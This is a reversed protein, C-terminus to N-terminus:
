KYSSSINSKNLANYEGYIKGFIMFVILSPFGEHVIDVTEYVLFMALLPFGLYKFTLKLSKDRIFKFFMIFMQIIFILILSAGIVGFRYINNIWGTHIESDVNSGILMSRYARTSEFSNGLWLANTKAKEFYLYLALYELYRTEKEVTSTQISTKNGRSKYGKTYKDPLLLFFLFFSTALIALRLFQKISIKQQLVVVLVGVVLMVIPLRKSTIIISILAIVLFWVVQQLSVKKNYSYIFLIVFCYALINIRDMALGGVTNDVSYMAYGLKFTLTVCLYVFCFVIIRKVLIVLKEDFDELGSLQKGCIFILYYSIFNTMYSLSYIDFHYFVLFTSYLIIALIIYNIKIRFMYIYYFLLIMQSFRFPFLVGSYSDKLLTLVLTSIINFLIFNFLFYNNKRRVQWFLYLDYMYILLVTVLGM